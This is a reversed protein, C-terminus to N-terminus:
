RLASMALVVSIDALVHPPGVRPNHLACRSHIHLDPQVPGCQKTGAPNSGTCYSLFSPKTSKSNVQGNKGNEPKVTPSPTMAKRASNAGVIRRCISLQFGNYIFKMCRFISFCVCLSCILFYFFSFFSYYNEDRLIKSMAYNYM